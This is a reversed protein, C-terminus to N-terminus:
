QAAAKAADLAAAIGNAYPTATFAPFARNFKSSDFQYDYEFQYLMEYMEGVLSNFWGFTRLIFKSLVQPKPTPVGLHQAALELLQQHNLHPQAVPLNWVEGWGTPSTGLLACAKGADPTYIYSHKKNLNLIVLPKKGRPMGDLMMSNLASTKVLPGYFDPARAIIGQVSGAAMEALMM